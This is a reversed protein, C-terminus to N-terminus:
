TRSCVLIFAIDVVDQSLPKTIQLVQAVYHRVLKGNCAILKHCPLLHSSWAIARMYNCSYANLPSDHMPFQADPTEIHVVPSENAQHYGKTGVRYVAILVAQKAFMSNYNQGRLFRPCLQKAIDGESGGRSPLVQARTIDTELLEDDGTGDHLGTDRQPLASYPWIRGYRTNLM